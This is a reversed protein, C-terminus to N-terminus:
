LKKEHNPVLSFLILLVIIVLIFTDGSIYSGTSMYMGILSLFLIVRAGFYKGKFKASFFEKIFCIAFAISSLGFTVVIGYVSNHIGKFRGIVGVADVNGEQGIGRGFFPYHAFTKKVYEAPTKLREYASTGERDSEKFLRDFLMDLIPIDIDLVAIAIFFIILMLVVLTIAILTKKQTKSSFVCYAVFLGAMILLASASVTCFVAIAYLTIFFIRKKNEKYMTDPVALNIAIGLNCVFGLYSPEHFVSYARYLGMEIGYSSHHFQFSGWFGDLWFIGFLNMMIFQIIALVSALSVIINYFRLYFVADKCFAKRMIKLAFCVFFVIIAYNIYSSLFSGIDNIRYLPILPFLLFFLLGIYEKVTHACYFFGYVIALIMAIHSVKISGGFLSFLLVNEFFLSAIVFLILFQEIKEVKSKM